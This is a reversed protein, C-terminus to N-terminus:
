GNRGPNYVTSQRSGIQTLIEACVTVAGPAPLGDSRLRATRYDMLDPAVAREPSGKESKPRGRRGNAQKKSIRSWRPQFGGAGASEVM